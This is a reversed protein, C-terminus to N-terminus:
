QKTNNLEEQYKKRLLREQSLEMEYQDQIDGVIKKFEKRLIGNSMGISSPARENTEDVQEMSSNNNHDAIGLKDIKLNNLERRLKAIEKDKSDHVNSENNDKLKAIEKELSNNKKRYDQIIKLSNERSYEFEKILYQHSFRLDNLATKYENLLRINEANNGGKQPSISYISSENLISEDGNRSKLPTNNSTSPVTVHTLSNDMVNNMSNQNSGASTPASTSASIPSDMALLTDICQKIWSFKSEISNNEELPPPLNVNRGVSISVLYAIFKDFVQKSDNTENMTKSNLSMSSSSHRIDEIYGLLLCSLNHNNLKLTLDDIEENLDLIKSSLADNSKVMKILISPDLNEDIVNAIFQKSISLKSLYYNKLDKKEDLCNKLGRLTELSFIQDKNIKSIEFVSNEILVKLNLYNLKSNPESVGNTSSTQNNQHSMLADSQDTDDTESSPTSILSPIEEITIEGEDLKSQLHSNFSSNFIDGTIVKSNDHTNENYEIERLKGKQEEQLQFKLLDATTNNLNYDNNTQFPSGKLLQDANIM